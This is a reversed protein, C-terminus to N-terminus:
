KEEDEDYKDYNITLEEGKKILRKTRFTVFACGDATTYKVNPNKSNNMYFTIDLANLGNYPFTYYGDVPHVFDTIIKYVNEDIDANDLDEKSIHIIHYQPCKNNTLM